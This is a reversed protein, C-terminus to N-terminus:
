AGHRTPRLRAGRCDETAPCRRSCASCPAGHAGAGRADGRARGGRAGAAARRPHGCSASPGAGPRGAPRPGGLDRADAAAPCRGHALRQRPRRASLLHDAGAHERGAGPRGVTAGGPDADRGRGPRDAGPAGTRPPRLVDPDDVAREAGPHGRRPPARGAVDCRPAPPAATGQQLGRAGPVGAHGTLDADPVAGPRAAPRGRDPEGSWRPLQGAPAGAPGRGRRAPPPHARPRRRRRARARPDLVAWAAAAPLARLGPPRHGLRGAPRGAAGRSRDLQDLRWGARARVAGARSARGGPRRRSTRDVAHVPRLGRCRRGAAGSRAVAAPPLRGRPPRHGLRDGRRRLAAPPRRVQASFADGRRYDLAPVHSALCSGTPLM